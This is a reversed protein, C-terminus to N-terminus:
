VNVELLASASVMGVVGWELLTDLHIEERMDSLGDADGGGIEFKRQEGALGDTGFRAVFEHEIFNGLQRPFCAEEADPLPDVGRPREGHVQPQHFRWSRSPPTGCHRRGCRRSAFGREDRERRRLRRSAQAARGCRGPFYW